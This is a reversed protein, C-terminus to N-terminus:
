ASLRDYPKMIRFLRKLLNLEYASSKISRAEFEEGELLQPVMEAAREMWESLTIFDTEHEKFFFFVPALDYWRRDYPNQVFIPDINQFDTMVKPKTNHKNIYTYM